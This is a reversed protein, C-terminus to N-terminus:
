LVMTITMPIVMMVLVMVMLTQVTTPQILHVQPVIMVATVMAIRVFMQIIIMVTM